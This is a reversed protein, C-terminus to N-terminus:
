IQHMANFIEEQIRHEDQLISNLCSKVAGTSAECCYTNYVSTLFKQGSLLDTLKEQEGMPACAQTKMDQM